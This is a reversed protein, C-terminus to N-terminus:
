SNVLQEIVKPEKAICKLYARSISDPFRKHQEWKKLTDPNIRYIKAFQYQTLNLKRRLLTINPTEALTILGKKKAEELASILNKGLESMFIRMISLFKKALRVFSPTAKVTFKQTRPFVLTHCPVM